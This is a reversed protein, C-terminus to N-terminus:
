ACVCWAEAISTSVALLRPSHDFAVSDHHANKFTRHSAEYINVDASALWFPVVPEAKCTLFIDKQDLLM